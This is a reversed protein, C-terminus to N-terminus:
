KGGTEAKLKKIKEGVTKNEPDLKLARQYLSLAKRNEKKASYVDALHELITPDEDALKVAKELNAIAEDYRKM